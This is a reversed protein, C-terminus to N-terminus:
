ENKYAAYEAPYYTWCEHGFARTRILVAEDYKDPSPAILNPHNRDGELAGYDTAMQDINYEEQTFYANSPANLGISCVIIGVVIICAGIILVAFHFKDLFECMASIAILSFGIIIAIIAGIVLAIPLDYVWFAETM